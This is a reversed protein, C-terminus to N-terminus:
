STDGEGGAEKLIKEKIKSKRCNSFPIGINLQLINIKSPTKQAEQIQPKNALM